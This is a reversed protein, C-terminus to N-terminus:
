VACLSPRVSGRERCWRPVPVRGAGILVRTAIERGTVGVALEDSAITAEVYSQFGARDPPQLEMPIGFLEGMLHCDAYYRERNEEAGSRTRCPQRTTRSRQPSGLILSSCSSREVREWSCPRRETSRGFSPTRGSYVM